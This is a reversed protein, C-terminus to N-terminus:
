ARAAAVQKRITATMIRAMHDQELVRALHKVMVPISVPNASYERYLHLWSVLEQQMAFHMTVRVLIWSAVTVTAPKRDLRM